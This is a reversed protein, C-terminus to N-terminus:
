KLVQEVYSDWKALKALRISQFSEEPSIKHTTLQQLVANSYVKSAIGAMYAVGTCSAEEVTAIDIDTNTLNSQFQMLYHNKTPGGDVSIRKIPLNYVGKMASIVANIQYAISEVSAKVLEAKGTLRTMGMFSASVDDRFYPAGLGSFAPILYTQDKQNARSVLDELEDPSDILGVQNQLWTIVAGSYNVNGELVYHCKGQSKWGVSIALHDPIISLTTGINMMISSGTGYTAKIDGPHEGGHAFLAAHSDGMVAHIPIAVPLIGEFDTWGFLSDSQNIEPLFEIPINFLKCLKEDWELTVLNMLQTRSANSVDTKFSVGKTLKYVLWSDITGCALHEIEDDICELIWAFKAASFYPSLPLGTKRKVMSAQSVNLRDTISKARACQWVIANAVPLGTKRNWVVATERQNTIGVAKISTADIGVIIDKILLLVNNYIELPEHSIWGKEDVLQCHSKTLKRVIRGTDDYLLVKTGQTSQDIGLVYSM